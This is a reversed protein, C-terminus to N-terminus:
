PALADLRSTHDSERRVDSNGHASWPPSSQRELDRATLKQALRVAQERLEAVATVEWRSARLMPGIYHLNAAARGTVDILAGVDDTVLGLGLPDAVALGQALLSRLLPEQSRRADYDPGTCNIVRDVTLSQTQQAGRARWHVRIQNGSRELLQVRGAHVHLRGARRMDALTDWVRQPLRHRHVDWYCRLHRLFRRRESEALRRWIAPALERVFAIGNRWDGDRRELDRALLRVARVLRPLSLSAATLLATADRLDSATGLPAQAPPILGHRSLAHVIINGGTNHRAAMVVDAMTLGTGVVLATEGRRVRPATKWPDDVYHVSGRLAAGGPLPAPQPNGLALVIGEADIGHGSELHVRLGANRPFREVAIVSGCVRRLEGHPAAAFEANRLMTELYDGYLERPVFDESRVQRNRRRAFNLFENPDASNASMRGAPVNLLFPFDRRAYAVGRAIPGRDILVVRLPHVSARLLEIAVATGSFGGGVIVITRLSPRM